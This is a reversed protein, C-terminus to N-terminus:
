KGSQTKAFRRMLQLYLAADGSQRVFTISGNLKGNPRAIEVILRITSSSTNVIQENDGSTSTLSEPLPSSCESAPAPTTAPVNVTVHMQVFSNTSSTKTKDDIDSTYKLKAVSKAITKRMVKAVKNMYRQPTVGPAKGGAYPWVIMNKHKGYGNIRSAMEKAFAIDTDSEIDGVQSLWRLGPHQRLVIGDKDIALKLEEFTPREEYNKRLLSDLFARESCSFNETRYGKAWPLSACRGGPHISTHWQDWKAWLSVNEPEGKTATIDSLSVKLAQRDLVPLCTRLQFYIAAISWVDSKECDYKAYLQRTTMFQSVEPAATHQSGVVTMERYTPGKLVAKVNGIDGLVLQGKKNFLINEPKLDRHLYGNVRLEHMAEIIDVILRRADKAEYVLPQQEEVDGNTAVISDFLDGNEALEMIILEADVNDYTNMECVAYYKIIRGSDFLSKPLTRARNFEPSSKTSYRKRFLFKVAVDINPGEITAKFVVGFQGIGLIEKCHIPYDDVTITFTHKTNPDLFRPVREGRLSRRNAFERRYVQSLKDDTETANIRVTHAIKSSPVVAVCLNGMPDCRCYQSFLDTEGDHKDVLAQQLPDETDAHTANKPSAMKKNQPPM